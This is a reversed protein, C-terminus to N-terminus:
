APNVDVVDAAVADVHDGAVGALSPPRAHRHM